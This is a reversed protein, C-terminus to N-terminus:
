KGGESFHGNCKRKLSCKFLFKRHFDMFLYSCCLPSDWRKDGIFCYRSQGDVCICLDCDSVLTTVLPSIVGCAIALLFGTNNLPAWVKERPPGFSFNLAPGCVLLLGKHYQVTSICFPALIELERLQSVKHM